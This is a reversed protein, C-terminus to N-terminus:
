GDESRRAKERGAASMARAPDRTMRRIFEVRRFRLASWDADIAVQRVPELGVEGLRNWGSDRNFNCRYKKSSGKPYAFWVLADGELTGSLADAFADVEPQKTAFLLAFQVTRGTPIQRLISQDAVERLIPEFEPPANVVVLERQGKLNLKRFLENM